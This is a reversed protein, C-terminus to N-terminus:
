ICDARFVLDNKTIQWINCVKFFHLVFMCFLYNAVCSYIIDNKKLKYMTVNKQQLILLM